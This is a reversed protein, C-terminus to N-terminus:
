KSEKQKKEAPTSWTMEPVPGHADTYTFKDEAFFETEPDITMRESDTM